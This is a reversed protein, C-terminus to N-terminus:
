ASPGLADGSTNGQKLEVFIVHTPTDGTNEGVHEQAGVWRVEGPEITVDVERGGASVRRAFSSLSIMVSDPHRHPTTADGPRDRYDLVRVLDNEFVTRYLEPNTITPDESVHAERLVEHSELEM